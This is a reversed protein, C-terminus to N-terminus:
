IRNVDKMRRAGGLVELSSSSASTETKFLRLVM